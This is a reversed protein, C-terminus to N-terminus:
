EKSDSDERSHVQLEHWPIWGSEALVNTSMAAVLAALFTMAVLKLTRNEKESVGSQDTSKRAYIACIM